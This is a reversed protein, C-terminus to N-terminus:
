SFPSRSLRGPRVTSSVRSIRMMCASPFARSAAPSMASSCKESSLGATMMAWDPARPEISFRVWIAPQTPWCATRPSRM